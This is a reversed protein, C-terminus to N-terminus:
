FLGFGVGGEEKARGQVLDEGVGEGVFGVFGLELEEEGVDGLVVDEEAGLEVRELLLVGVGKVHDVEEILGGNAPLAREPVDRRVDDLLVDPGRRKPFLHLDEDTTRTVKGERRRDEQM